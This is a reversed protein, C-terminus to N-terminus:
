KDELLKQATQVDTILVNILKGRLAGKIAPVKEPSTAVGVCYRLHRLKELDIAIIRDSLSTNVVNGDQDYFVSCIEGVVGAGALEEISEKGFAGAWVINSHRVPAGIGVVAIDLKEWFEAIKQYNVDQIIAQRIQATKSVAPAYLYHSNARFAHGIKYVITNVHFESDLNEPGGVLPVIEAAVENCHDVSANQAISALSSGWAFGLIDHEALIRKLFHFGARGANNKTEVPDISSDVIYVEKLGFQTELALELNEYSDNAISIQVIGTQLARKLYKSITTRNVGLKDAIDNQKMNDNYYMNAVKILLRKEVPVM